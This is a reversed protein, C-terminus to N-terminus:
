DRRLNNWTAVVTRGGGRSPVLDGIEVLWRLGRKERLALTPERMHHITLQRRRLRKILLSFSFLFLFCSIHTSAVRGTRAHCQPTGALCVAWCHLPTTIGSLRPHRPQKTRNGVSLVGRCADLPTQFRQISGLVFGWCCTRFPDPLHVLSPRLQRGM